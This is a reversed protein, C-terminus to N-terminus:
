LAAKIQWNLSSFWTSHRDKGSIAYHARVRHFLTLPWTYDSSSTSTNTAYMERRSGIPWEIRRKEHLIEMSVFRPVDIPKESADPELPIVFPCTNGREVSIYHMFNRNRTRRKGLLAADRRDQVLGVRQAGLSAFGDGLEVLQQLGHEEIHETVWNDIWLSPGHCIDVINSVNLTAKLQTHLSTRKGQLNRIQTHCVHVSLSDIKRFNLSEANGSSLSFSGCQNLVVDKDNFTVAIWFLNPSARDPISNNITTRVLIMQNPQTDISLKRGGYENRM